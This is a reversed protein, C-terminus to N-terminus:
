GLVGAPDFVTKIKEMLGRTIADAPEDAPSGALREMILSGGNKIMRERQAQAASVASAGAQDALVRVIGSGAHIAFRVGMLAGAQAFHAAEDFTERLRSPLHALRVRVASGAEARNLVHWEDSGAFRRHTPALRGVQAIGDAVAEANGHFRALVTWEPWSVIELAVPDLQQMADILDVAQAFSGCAAAITEDVAPAPKLRLNVRTIFGLTGRSGVLLRVVDYGAVNKVVRGGFELVRGDGTVVELGLVQDRPTGHAHRLPGALARAVISGITTDDAVPPDLALFQNNPATAGAIDALTAGAQVGIVLDAPEYEAIATMHQASLEVRTGRAAAERM